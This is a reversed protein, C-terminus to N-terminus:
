YNVKINNKKVEKYFKNIKKNNQNKIQTIVQILQNKIYIKNLKIKQLIKMNTIVTKILILNIIRITVIKIIKHIRFQDLVKILFIMIKRYFIHNIISKIIKLINLIM